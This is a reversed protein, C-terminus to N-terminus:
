KQKGAFASRRRFSHKREYDFSLSKKESSSPRHIIKVKGDVRWGIVAIEEQLDKVLRGEADYSYNNNLNIGNDTADFVGMDDIDDSFSGANESDNVSYLRNRIRKGM